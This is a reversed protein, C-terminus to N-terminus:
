AAQDAVHEMPTKMDLSRHPRVHNFFRNYDELPGSAAEVRASSTPSQGVPLM